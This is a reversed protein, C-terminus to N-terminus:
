DEDDYSALLGGLTDSNSSISTTSKKSSVLPINPVLKVTAIKKIVEPEKRKSGGYVQL